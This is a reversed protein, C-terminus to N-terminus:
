FGNETKPQEGPIIAIATVNDRAGQAVALDIMRSLDQDDGRRKLLEVIESEDLADYIGDSCLFFVDGAEISEIMSDAELVPLVGVARVLVHSMPHRAAQEITLEGREVLEQVQTHDRTLQKLEGGRLRYARSDGAWVLGIRGGEIVCSVLTSGMRSGNTQAEDYIARNVEVAASRLIQVRDELNGSPEIGQLHEVVMTSARDGFRHGGMGDAVAWIGKEPASFFRDENVSRVAGQHTGTLTRAPYGSQSSIASRLAPESRELETKPQTAEPAPAFISPSFVTVEATHVVTAPAPSAAIKQQTAVPAPAPALPEAIGAAAPPEQTVPKRPIPTDIPKKVSKPNRMSLLVALIILVFGATIATATNVGDIGGGLLPGGTIDIDMLSQGVSHGGGPMMGFLNNESWNYGFHLAIPAALGKTKLFVLGLAIGGLFLNVYSFWHDVGGVMHVASFLGASLILAIWKGWAREIAPLLWGRFMLEEACVQILIAAGIAFFPLNQIPLPFGAAITGYGNLVATVAAALMLLIGTLLGIFSFILPREGWAFPAAKWLKTYLFALAAMAPFITFYPLSELQWDEWAFSNSLSLREALWFGGMVCAAVTIGGVLV